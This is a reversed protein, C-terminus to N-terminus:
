PVFVDLGGIKSNSSNGDEASLIDKLPIETYRTMVGDFRTPSKGVSAGPVRRMSQVWVGSTGSKGSWHTEKFIHSLGQHANAVMLTMLMQGVGPVKTHKVRLGYNSLVRNAEAKGDGEIIGCAQMVWSGVTCREGSRFMEVPSQMMHSLCRQWDAEDDEAESLNAWKLKEAWEDLTDSHPVEGYLLLDHCALLTGFQDASRGSHGVAALKMRYEELIVKYKDWNSLLRRRLAAGIQNLRDPELSPPSTNQLADLQLIAMRSVDQAMMPPILISSFLFCNRLVFRSGKHDAGGRLAQSGSCAFRAIKVVDNQKRNDEEAELEDVAVPLTMHGVTQRIGAATTDATSIMGEAGMVKGVVDHLTSKGTAKDGTIWVLPRWTLAAGLMAAGIWGLLFHPDVEPRRWQWSKLLSLLEEACKDGETDDECPKPKEPASPYVYGGITGPMFAQDACYIKDGCHMVLRGDDSVWSGPGRVKNEISVPGIQGCADMLSSAVMEPKWGVLESHGERDPASWRGWNNWLFQTDPVFLAQLDLRGHKSAALSRLQSNADLYYFLDGELGLPRVPCNRPLDYDQLDPSSGSKAKVKKQPEANKVAKAIADKGSM